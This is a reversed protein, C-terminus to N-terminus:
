ANLALKQLYFNEKERMQAEQEPTKDGYGSLHLLGHVMVRCLEQMFTVKFEDANEQVRDISIFIDGQLRNNESYDFTIVDTYYDHQLYEQNIELLHEDSCFIYNIEWVSKQENAASEQLWSAISDPESLEFPVDESHFSIPQEPKEFFSLPSETPLM